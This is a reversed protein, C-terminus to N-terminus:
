DMLSPTGIPNELWPYYEPCPSCTLFQHEQSNLTPTRYMCKNPRTCSSSRSGGPSQSFQVSTPCRLAESKHIQTMPLPHKMWDILQKITVVFVDKNQM